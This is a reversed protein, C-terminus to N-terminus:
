PLPLPTGVQASERLRTGFWWPVYQGAAILVGILIAVLRALLISSRLDDRGSVVVDRAEATRDRYEDLLVASDAVAARAVAVDEILAGVQDGLEDSNGAFSDLEDSISRLETGLPDFADRLGAVADPLPVDPDYDPGFPISSAARLTTDITASLTEVVALAADVDDFTSPLTDALTSTADALDATDAITADVAGLTADITVLSGDVADVLTDAVEITDALTVTADEGVRLSERVSRELDSIVQWAITTAVISVLVGFVAIARMITGARYGPSPPAPEITPETPATLMTM